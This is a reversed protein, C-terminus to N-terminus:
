FIRFGSAIRAIRTIINRNRGTRKSQKRKVKGNVTMKSETQKFDYLFVYLVCMCVEKDFHIMVIKITPHTCSSKWISGEKKKKKKWIQSPKMGCTSDHSFRDENYYAKNHTRQVIYM